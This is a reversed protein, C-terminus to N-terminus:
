RVVLEYRQAGTQGSINTGYCWVSITFHFTGAVTPTGSITMTNDHKEGLVLTLGDPLAGDEIGAGGVPTVAQGVTITVAYPVGVQADALTAPSFELAPRSEFWCGSVAAAVLAGALLPRLAGRHRHTRGRAENSPAIANM